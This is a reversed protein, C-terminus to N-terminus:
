ERWCAGFWSVVARPKPRNARQGSSTRSQRVSTRDDDTIFYAQESESHDVARGVASALNDM